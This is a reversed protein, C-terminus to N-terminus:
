EMMSLEYSIAINVLNCISFQYLYSYSIEMLFIIITKKESDQVLREFWRHSLDVIGGSATM